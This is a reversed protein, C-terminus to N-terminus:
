ALGLDETMLLCGNDFLNHLSWNKLVRVSIYNMLMVLIHDLFSMPIYDMFFVSWDDNFVDLRNDILFMNVLFM